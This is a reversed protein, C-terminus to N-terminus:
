GNPPTPLQEARAELLAFLALSDLEDVLAGFGHDYTTTISGRLDRAAQAAPVAALALPADGEFEEVGRRLDSVVERLYPDLAISVIENSRGPDSTVILCQEEGNALRWGMVLCLRRGDARESVEWAETLEWGDLYESWAPAEAGRGLLIREVEDALVGVESDVTGFAGLTRALVLAEDDYGTVADLQERLVQLTPMGPESGFPHAARGALAFDPATLYWGTCLASIHHEVAAASGDRLVIRLEHLLDHALERRSLIKDTSM